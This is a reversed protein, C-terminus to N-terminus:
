RVKLLKHYLLFRKLAQLEAQISRRNGLGYTAPELGALRVKKYDVSVNKRSFKEMEDRTGQGKKSILSAGNPLPIGFLGHQGSPKLKTPISTLHKNDATEKLIIDEAIAKTESASHIKLLTVRISKRKVQKTSVEENSEIKYSVLHFNLSCIRCHM